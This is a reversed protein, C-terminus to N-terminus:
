RKGPACLSLSPFLADARTCLSGVIEELWQAGQGSLAPTLGKVAAIYSTEGEVAQWFAALFADGVAYSPAADREAARAFIEALADLNESLEGCHRHL